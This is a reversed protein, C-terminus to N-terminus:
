LKDQYPSKRMLAEEVAFECWAFFYPHNAPYIEQDSMPGSQINDEHIIRLNGITYVSELERLAIDLLNCADRWGDTNRRFEDSELYSFTGDGNPIWMDKRHLGPEWACFMFMIKMKRKHEMLRDDSATMKVCLCPCNPRDIDPAAVVAPSPQNRNQPPIYISFAEPNKLGYEDNYDKGDKGNSSPVKLMIKSCINERAWDTITDISNVISM